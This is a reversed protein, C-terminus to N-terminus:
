TENEAKANEAKAIAVHAFVSQIGGDAYYKLVTMLEANLARLQVIEEGQENIKEMAHEFPHILARLREIETQLEHRQCKRFIDASYVAHCVRM